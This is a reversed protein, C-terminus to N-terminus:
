SRRKGRRTQRAILRSARASSTPIRHTTTAATITTVAPPHRLRGRGTYSYSGGTVMTVGPGGDGEPFAAPADSGADGGGAVEVVVRGARREGHSWPSACYRRAGSRM